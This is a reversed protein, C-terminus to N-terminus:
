AKCNYHRANTDGLSQWSKIGSTTIDYDLNLSDWDYNKLVDEWVANRKTSKSFYTYVMTLFSFAEMVHPVSTCSHELVLDVHHAACWTNLVRPM